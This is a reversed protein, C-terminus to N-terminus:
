YDIFVYELVEKWTDEEMQQLLVILDPNNKM